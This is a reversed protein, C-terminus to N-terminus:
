DFLWSLGTSSLQLNQQKDEHDKDRFQINTQSTRMQCMRKVNEPFRVLDNRNKNKTKGAPGKNESQWQAKNREPFQTVLVSIEARRKEQDQCHIQNVQQAKYIHRDPVSAKQEGNGILELCLFPM